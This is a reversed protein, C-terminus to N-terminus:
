AKNDITFSGNSIRNAFPGVVAGHSAGYKQYEELSNFGLAVDAFNGNRDPAYVSIIKAGYNTLAVVMGKSNKMVFLRTSKGDIVREFDSSKYPMEIEKKSTSTCASFVAILFYLVIRKM